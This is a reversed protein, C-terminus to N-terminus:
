VVIGNEVPLEERMKFSSMLGGSVKRKEQWGKLIFEQM